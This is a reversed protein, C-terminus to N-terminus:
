LDQIAEEMSNYANDTLSSWSAASIELINVCWDASKAVFVSADGSAKVPRGPVNLSTTITKIV